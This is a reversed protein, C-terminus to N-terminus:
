SFTNEILNDFYIPALNGKFFVNFIFIFIVKRKKIQFLLIDIRVFSPRKSLFIDVTFKVKIIFIFELICM